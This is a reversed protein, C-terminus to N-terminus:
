TYAEGTQKDIIKKPFFGGKKGSKDMNQEFDWIM